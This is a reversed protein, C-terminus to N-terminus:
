GADPREAETARWVLFLRLDFELQAYGPQMHECLQYFARNHETERLHALEHVVIMRLLEPPLERFLSAIRIERSTVLRGGHPRSMTTHLGLANKVVDLRNDYCVKDIAPARRLHEQKLESVYRYLARDTQVEHRGPYRLRLYGGLQGSDLLQRVQAQLPDPYGRLIDLRSM